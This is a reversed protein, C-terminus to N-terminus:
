SIRSKTANILAICEVVNKFKPVNELSTIEWLGQKSRTYFLLTNIKLGALLDELSAKDYIRQQMQIKAHEKAFPVTAVFIGNPKLIRQIEAVARKDGEEDGDFIGVHEITSVAIVADFFNSPFGTKRIDEQHFHFKEYKLPFPKVDIGYTEYGLEPLVTTLLDGHCGVVAIKSRKPLVIISKIAFPYEVIRESVEFIKTARNEGFSWLYIKYLIKLVIKKPYKTLRM